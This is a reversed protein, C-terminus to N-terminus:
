VDATGGTIHVVDVVEEHTAWLEDREPGDVMERQGRHHGLPSSGLTPQSRLGHWKAPLQGVM